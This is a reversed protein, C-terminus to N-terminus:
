RNVRGLNLIDKPCKIRYIIRRICDDPLSSILSNNNNTMNDDNFVYIYNELDAKMITLKKISNQTTNKDLTTFCKSDLGLFTCHKDLTLSCM